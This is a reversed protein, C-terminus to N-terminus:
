EFPALFYCVQEAGYVSLMDGDQVGLRALSWDAYSDGPQVMATVQARREAGCHPCRAASAPLLGQPQEVAESRGCEPCVFALLLDRGLELRLPGALRNQALALVETARMEATRLPLTEVAAWDLSQHQPCTPDRTFATRHLRGAQGQYVLATGSAPPRGQLFQLAEQVLLGAVIATTTITTPQPPATDQPQFGSSCSYRLWLDSREQRGLTCNFCAAEASLFARVEGGFAWMAADLLPVDALRCLRNLFLRAGQNDLCGLVLDCAHLRGLGLVFRLDGVLPTVHLEPNLRTLARAAALAKPIGVDQESFLLTRSLNSREVLDLDVVLLRGVGLLALNKLAENGLAGAGAVLITAAALREQAWGPALRQRAYREDAAGAM